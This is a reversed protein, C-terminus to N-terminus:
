KIVGDLIVVDNTMRTVQHHFKRVGCTGDDFLVVRQTVNEPLLEVPPDFAVSNLEGWGSPVEWFIEGHDWGFQADNTLVGEPTIRPINSTICVHDTAYVNNNDPRMWRGAGNERTHSELLTFAPHAFYGSRWGSYCPVEEVMIERFRVDLPKLALEVDMGIGGADGIPVGYRHETVSLVKISSPEIVSLCPEYEADGFTMCLPKNAETIPCQYKGGNVRGGGMRSWTLAPSTPFQSINVLERVGYKHRNDCINANAHVVAKIEIRFVTIRDQADYTEGTENEVFSGSVVVDNEDGSAVSGECKFEESYTEMPALVLNSPLLLPGCALPSLKDLNTATFSVTGGNPGGYASVCLKVTTSRKQVSEGPSPVYADEFIVADKSFSVSVGVELPEEEDMTDNEGHPSCGCAGGCAPLRYAEYCYYGETGCGTCLCNEACTFAYRWGGLSVVVCCGNTWTFGGGLCDPVVTMTFSAGSRMGVCEIEVPWVIQIETSSVQDVDIEGSSQGICFIPMRSTVQYTKGILLIVRNTDGARAVFTPDPLASYGDGTFTVLANADPVVLDVWCYANTNAGEPLTQHPGFNDGDCVLPDVDEENPIGDDDWDDPNVRRYVRVLDNSRVTFGGDGRLSIQANAERNTDGCAFFREWTVTREDGDALLWLRSEGQVALTDGLGASVAFGPNRPADQLRGDMFWWLRSRPGGNTGCPFAWAGFDVMHMGFDSRAGHEHLRGVYAAKSPMAYLCTENASTM